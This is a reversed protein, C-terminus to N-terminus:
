EIVYKAFGFLPTPDSPYRIGREIWYPEYILGTGHDYIGIDVVQADFIDRIKDGVLDFIAQIDLHSALAQQVGNILTQEASRQELDATLEAVRRELERNARLTAEYLRANELATTALAAIARLDGAEAPYDSTAHYCAARGARLEYEALPDAAASRDTLLALAASYHGIAAAHDAAARASDAARRLAVVEPSATLTHEMVRHTNSSLNPNLICGTDVGARVLPM